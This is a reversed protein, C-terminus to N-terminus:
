QSAVGGVTSGLPLFNSAFFHGVGSSVCEGCTDDWYFEGYLRVDRAPLFYRDVNCLAFSPTLAPSIAPEGSRALVPMVSHLTSSRLLIGARRRLRGM